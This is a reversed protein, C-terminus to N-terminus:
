EEESLESAKLSSASESSYIIEESLKKIEDFSLLFNMASKSGGFRKAELKQFHTRLKEIKIHTNAPCNNLLKNMLDDFSAENQALKSFRLLVWEEIYRLGQSSNQDQVKKIKQEILLWPFNNRLQDEENRKRRQVVFFGALAYLSLPLAWLFSPFNSEEPNEFNQPGSYVLIKEKNESPTSKKSSPDIHLEISPIPLTEYSKKDPDFYSWSNESLKFIGAEQPVILMEFDKYGESRDNTEYNTATRSKQLSPPLKLEPEELGKINGKGEIRIKLSFAEDQVIKQEPSQLSIKYNGVPINTQAISAPKPPLPLVKIPISGSSRVFTQNQGLMKQPNQMQELLQFIDSDVEFRMKLPDVLLDGTKVPFLAFRIVETKFYNSNRYQTREPRWSKPIYLQEKLFDKFTPFSGFELNRFINENTYVYFPLTILEGEFVETKSPDAVVLVELQRSKNEDPASESPLPAEDMDFMNFFPLKPTPQLQVQPSNQISKLSKVAISTEEATYLKNSAKIQIKPTKLQGTKLPTLLFKLLLSSKQVSKGNSFVIQTKQFQQPGLIKWNKNDEISQVSFDRPTSSNSDIQFSIAIDQGSSERPQINIQVTENQDEKSYLLSSFSFLALLLFCKYSKMNILNGHSQPDTKSAGSMEKKKRRM